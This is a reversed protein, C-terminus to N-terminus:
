GQADRPCQPWSQETACRRGLVDLEEDQMTVASRSRAPQGSRQHEGRVVHQGDVHPTGPLQGPVSRLMTERGTRDRFRLVRQVM